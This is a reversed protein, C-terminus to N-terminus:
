RTHTHGMAAAQPSLKIMSPTKPEAPPSLTITPCPTCAIRFVGDGSTGAYLETTNIPDIAFSQVNGNALGNNFSSWSAGADTSKFVGVSQAGAYVTSPNLPDIAVVDTTKDTIGNNAASWNMGGDITKYIGGNSAGLIAAYVTSPDLPSVALGRVGLFSPLGNSVETWTAGGDTTKFVRGGSTGAYLTNPSSPALALSSIFTLGSVTSGVQIFTAGGDTSKWVGNFTGVYLTRQTSPSAVLTPDLAIAVVSSTSAPLGTPNWTAAGDTSKYLQTGNGIDMGAYLIGPSTAQPDHALSLATRPTTDSPDTPLGVSSATWSGGSDTSKFVGNDTGTYVINTTTPNIALSYSIRGAPGHTEWRTSVCSPQQVEFAGVDVRGNVVRAFPAGRQDFNPPPAFNPDGANIAVSAPALAMTFTPGGYPGLPLLAIQASTKVTAGGCTGDDAIDYSDATLTGGNNSCNGGFTSSAIITNNLTLSGLLNRIAGGEAGVSVDSLTNNSFTSNRVIATNFNGNLIAGGGDDAKNGFFTSNTVNLTVTGGNTIAGGRSDITGNENIARNGSFTCNNVNVTGGGTNEVAGGFHAATNGSFTCNTVNLSGGDNEIGGGNEGNPPIHNAAGNAITLNLLTLTKTANVILVQVSNNGSVVINQTTGDITVDDNINPLISGLTITCVGGSCGPDSAPIAFNITDAGSNANAANIAERLTCDAANCTGDDHDATTNVTFTTGVPGIAKAKFTFFGLTLGALCIVLAILTRPNCFASFASSKKKM